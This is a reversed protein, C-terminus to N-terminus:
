FRWRVAETKSEREVPRERLWEDLAGSEEIM